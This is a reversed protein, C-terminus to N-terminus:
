GVCVGDNWWGGTSWRRRRPRDGHGKKEPACLMGDGEIASCNRLRQCRYVQYERRVCGDWPVDPCLCVCSILMTQKAFTYMVGFHKGGTDWDDAKLIIM